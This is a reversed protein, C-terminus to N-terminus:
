ESLLQIAQDLRVLVPERGIHYVTEFIGPAQLRGTIAVRIPQFLQGAKLGLESALSRLTQDIAELTWEGAALAERTRQLAQRTTANDMGKAPLEAVNPPPADALFFDLLAPAESLLRMREQVLPLVARLRERETPLGAKELFPAVHEALDDVPLQRIYHGNMHELKEFNIAAPSKKIEHLDFKEIMEELTALDRDPAVSWGQLAIFNVFAEPLYGLARFESIMTPYTNETVTGDPNQKRKSLKGKGSPDLILPLHVYVPTEWDLAQHILIHLPFTPLYEDARMVHSIQMDHDDVLHGLHYTPLGDSKLLILDELSRNEFTTDGRVADHVTTQGELPVALRIVPPRGEAECAAAAEAREAPGFTRCRRDYGPPANRAKQTARREQLREESCYCYYGHGSEVLQKAVEQYRPRRQAQFYENPSA